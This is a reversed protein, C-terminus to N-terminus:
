VKSRMTRPLTPLLFVVAPFTYSTMPRLFKKRLLRRYIDPHAHAATVTSCEPSVQALLPLGRSGMVSLSGDSASSAVTVAVGGLGLTLSV